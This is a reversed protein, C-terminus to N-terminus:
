SVVLTPQSIARMPESTARRESMIAQLRTSRHQDPKKTTPMTATSKHIFQCSPRSTSHMVGTSATSHTNKWRRMRRWCRRTRAAFLRMVAAKLSPMM